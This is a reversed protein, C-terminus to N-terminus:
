IRVKKACWKLVLYLIVSYLGIIVIGAFYGFYSTGLLNMGFDRYSMPNFTNIKQMNGLPSALSCLGLVVLFVLLSSLFLLITMVQFTSVLGTGEGIIRQLFAYILKDFLAGVGIGLLLTVFGMIMTEKLIMSFLHRKELGLVSYLGLEKSRNKM